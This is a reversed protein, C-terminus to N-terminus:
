RDRSKKAWRATREYLRFDARPISNLSREQCPSVTDRLHPRQLHEPENVLISTDSHVQHCIFSLLFLTHLKGVAKDLIDLLLLRSGDVTSATGLVIDGGPLPCFLMAHNAEAVVRIDM